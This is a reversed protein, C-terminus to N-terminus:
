FYIKICNVRLWRRILNIPLYFLTFLFGIVLNALVVTVLAYIFKFEAPLEGILQVVIDYM